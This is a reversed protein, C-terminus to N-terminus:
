LYTSLFFKKDTESIEGESKRGQFTKLLCKLLHYKSPLIKMKTTSKLTKLKQLQFTKLIIFFFIKNEVFFTKLIKVKKVKM